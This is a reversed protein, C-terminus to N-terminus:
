FNGRHYYSRNPQELRVVRRETTSRNALAIRREFYGHITANGSRSTPQSGPVIVVDKVMLQARVPTAAVWLSLSLGLGVALRRRRPRNSCQDNM